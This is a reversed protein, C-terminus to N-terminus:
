HMLLGFDPAFIKGTVLKSEAATAAKARAELLEKFSAQQGHMINKLIESVPVRTAASSLAKGLMAGGIAGSLVGLGLGLVGAATIRKGVKSWKTWRQYSKYKDEEIFVKRGGSTTIWYGKKGRFTALKPQRPQAARQTEGSIKQFAAIGKKSVGTADEVVEAVVLGISPDVVDYIAIDAKASPNFRSNLKIKYVKFRSNKDFNYPVTEADKIESLFKKLVEAFKAKAKGQALAEAINVQVYAKDGWNKSLAAVKNVPGEQKLAELFSPLYKDLLKRYLAVLTLGAGRDGIRVSIRPNTKEQVLTLAVEKPEKM